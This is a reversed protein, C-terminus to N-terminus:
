VPKRARVMGKQKTKHEGMRAVIIVTKHKELKKSFSILLSVAATTAAVVVASASRKKKTEEERGERV